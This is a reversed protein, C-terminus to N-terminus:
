PEGFLWDCCRLVVDRQDNLVEGAETTLVARITAERGDLDMPDFELNIFVTLGTSQLQEADTNCEFRGTSFLAGLREGDAAVIEFEAENRLPGFGAGALAGWVHVGGQIGESMMIEQGNEIPLWERIGTGLSLVLPATELSECLAASDHADDAIDTTEADLIEADIDEADDADADADEQIDADASPTDPTVDAPGTDLADEPTDFEVDSEGDVPVDAADERTDEVADDSVDGTDGTNDPADAEADGQASDLSEEPEASEGADSSCGIAYSMLLLVFAVRM